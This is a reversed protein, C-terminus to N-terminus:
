SQESPMMSSRRKKNEYQAEAVIDELGERAFALKESAYDAMSFITRMTNVTVKRMPMKIMNTFSSDGKRFSSFMKNTEKDEVISDIKNMLERINNNIVEFNNEIQKINNERNTNEKEINDLKQMLSEYKGKLENVEQNLQENNEM